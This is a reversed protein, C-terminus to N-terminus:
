FSRNLVVLELIIIFNRGITRFIEQPSSFHCYVEEVPCPLRPRDYGYMATTLAELGYRIYSTYMLLTRYIPLPSFDGFGQVANLIMTCTLAPGIFVGNKFLFLSM